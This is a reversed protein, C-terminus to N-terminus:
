GSHAMLAHSVVYDTSAIGSYVYGPKGVVPERMMDKMVIEFKVGGLVLMIPSLAATEPTDPVIWGNNRDYSSGPIHAHIAKAVKTPVIVLTTGQRPTVIFSLTRSNLLEGGREEM